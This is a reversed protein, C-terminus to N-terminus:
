VRDGALVAAAEGDSAPPPLLRERAYHSDCYERIARIKGGEVEYIYCYRNNYPEGRHTEGHHIAEIIVADDSGHVSTIEAQSPKPLMRRVHKRFARIGDHGQWPSAAGPMEFMLTQSIDDSLFEFAASGDGTKVADRYAMVVAVNDDALAM